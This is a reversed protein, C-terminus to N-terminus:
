PMTCRLPCKLLICLVKSMMCADFPLVVDLFPNFVNRPHEADRLPKRLFLHNSIADEAPDMTGPRSTATVFLVAQGEHSWPSMTLTCPLSYRKPRSSPVRVDSCSKSRKKYCARWASRWSCGPWGALEGNKWIGHRRVWMAQM